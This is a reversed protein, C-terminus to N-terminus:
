RKCAHLGFHLSDHHLCSREEARERESAEAGRMMTAYNPTKHGLSSSGDVARSSKQARPLHLRCSWDTRRNYHWNPRDSAVSVFEYAAKPM